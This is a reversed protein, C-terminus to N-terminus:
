RSYLICLVFIILGVISQADWWQLYPSTQVPEEAGIIVVASQNETQLPWLTPATIQQFISLLNPNCERDPENTM